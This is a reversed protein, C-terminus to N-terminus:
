LKEQDLDTTFELHFSSHKTLLIQMQDAKELVIHTCPLVNVQYILGVPVFNEM